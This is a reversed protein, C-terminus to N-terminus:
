PAKLQLVWAALAQAEQPNVQPNAPMPIIGWVGSGGKMIKLALREKAMPDKSYKAAVDLYSPGVVKKDMAHCSLCHKDKALEMQAHSMGSAVLSGWLFALLVFSRGFSPLSPRHILMSM